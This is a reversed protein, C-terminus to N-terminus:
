MGLRFAKPYLTAINSSIVNEAYISREVYSSPIQDPTFDTVFARETQAAEVDPVIIDVAFEAEASTWDMEPHTSTEPVSVMSSEPEAAKITETSAVVNVSSMESQALTEAPATVSSPTELFSQGAFIFAAAAVASAPIWRKGSHALWHSFTARFSPKKVLEKLTRKEFSSEFSNWFSEDPQECRKLKLLDELSVSSSESANEQPDM